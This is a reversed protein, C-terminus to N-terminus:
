RVPCDREGPPKTKLTITILQAIREDSISRHAGLRLEDYLGSIRNEIFRSRWKGVTPHSVRFQPAVESNSTGDACALVIKARQNLAAPLSRSRAITELQHQEDETLEAYAPRGLPM